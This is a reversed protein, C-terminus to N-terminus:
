QLLLGQKLDQWRGKRLPDLDHLHRVWSQMQDKQMPWEGNLRKHLLSLEILAQYIWKCDEAGDLMELLSEFERNVYAMRQESSLGPAMTQNAYAPDFTCMLNQHYFWLSQDSPDTYLARQVLALESSSDTM